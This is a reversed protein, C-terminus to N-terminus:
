RGNSKISSNLDSFLLTEFESAPVPRSYLYGQAEDCKQMQLYSAQFATEVGEATVALGMNHAMAIISRVIATDELTSSEAIRHVFSRDIKLRTLPYRMLYSLSAFGTGFDDLALSVGLNRLEKLATLAAEDNGLAVNETIELELADPSLGSARLAARVDEILVGDRFQAPFLNVGMRLFPFPGSRWRAAADCASRLIWNGVELAAPSLALADIFQDPVLLGRSPHQWRLLAEAGVVLGDSLRFQPQFWLVFEKEACARRLEGDLEQRARAKELMAPVYTTSRRGGAAKADYLALDANSILEDVNSGDQPATAIGASAGILLRHGDIEFREELRRLMADVFTKIAIQGDYNRLILFFEDGGLRYVRAAPAAHESLRRAVAELLRDGTSHGLTDNVDKFGDLDFMAVSTSSSSPQGANQIEASLDQLLSTRNPLGTLQDFLALHQLRQESALQERMDRGILFFRQAQESWVGTLALPVLHGEKHVFDTRFNRIAEGRLSLQLELRLTEIDSTSVFEGGYHGIVEEPRYGLAALCSDSIRRIVRDRDTVVLLDASTEFLRRNEALEQTLAATTQRVVDDAKSRELRAMPLWRLLLLGLVVCAAAVNILKPIILLNPNGLVGVIAGPFLGYQAGFYLGFYLNEIVNRSTDVAVVILLLRTAGFTKPNRVYATVVAGLIGLWLAVIVWYILAAILHL